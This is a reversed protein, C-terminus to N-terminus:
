WVRRDPYVSGLNKYDDFIVRKIQVRARRVKPMRRIFVTVRGIRFEWYIRKQKM